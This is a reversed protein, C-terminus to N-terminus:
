GGGHVCALDPFPRAAIQVIREFRAGLEALGDFDHGADVPDAHPQRHLQVVDIQPQQFVAVAPRHDVAADAVLLGRVGPLLLERARLAAPRDLAHDDGVHMGIVVPEGSPLQAFVVVLEPDRAGFEQHAAIEDGIRPLLRRLFAYAEIAGRAPVVLQDLAVLCAEATETVADVLKRIRIAANALAILDNDAPAGPTDDRAVAM